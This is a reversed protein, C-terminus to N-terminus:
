FMFSAADGMIVLKRFFDLPQVSDLWARIRIMLLDDDRLCGLTSLEEQIADLEKLVLPPGPIHEEHWMSASLNLSAVLHYMQKRTKPWEKGWPWEGVWHQGMHSEAPSHSVHDAQIGQVYEGRMNVLLPDSGVHLVQVAYKPMLERLSSSAAIAQNLVLVLAVLTFGLFTAVTTAVIRLYSLVSAETAYRVLLAALAAGLFALVLALWHLKVALRRGLTMRTRTSWLRVRAIIRDRLSAVTERKGM